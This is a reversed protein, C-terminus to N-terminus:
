AEVGVGERAECGSAEEEGLQAEAPTKRMGLEVGDLEDKVRSDSFKGCHVRIM